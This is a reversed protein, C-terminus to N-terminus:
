FLKKVVDAFERVLPHARNRLIFVKVLSTYYWKQKAKPRNLRLFVADGYTKHDLLMSKANHLKDACAVYVVKVPATKLYEITHTKRDEWSGSKDPESAGEVLKAVNAGFRKKIQGVTAPTDELTDHLVGAIIVDKPMKYRILIEATGLPHVIYPIKTKKRYHGAHAKTAFEIARFIRNSRKKKIINGLSSV